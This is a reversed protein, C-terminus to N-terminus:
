KLQTVDVDSDLDSMDDYDITTVTTLASQSSATGLITITNLTVNRTDMVVVKGKSGAGAMAAKSGTAHRAKERYHM